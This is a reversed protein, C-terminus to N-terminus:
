STGPRPVDPPPASVARSESLWVMFCEVHAPRGRPVVLEAETHPIPKACIACVSDVGWRALVAAGDVLRLQGYMLRERVELRLMELDDAGGAIPPWPEGALTHRSREILRRSRAVLARSRSMLALADEVADGIGGSRYLGMPESLYRRRRSIALPM